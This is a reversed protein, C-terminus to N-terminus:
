LGFRAAVFLRGAPRLARSFHSLLRVNLVMTLRSKSGCDETEPLASQTDTGRQPGTLAFILSPARSLTLAGMFSLSERESLSTEGNTAYWHLQEKCGM